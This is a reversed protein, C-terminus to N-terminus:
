RMDRWTESGHLLQQAEPVTIGLLQQLARISAIANAGEGRLFALVGEVSRAAAVMAQAQRLTAESVSRGLPKPV